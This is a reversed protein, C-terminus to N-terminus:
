AFWALVIGILYLAFLPVAVIMMNVPDVTPTVIAALTVVGMIAYRWGRLLQRATVVKLKALFFLVLPMEFSIGVWFLFSTVFSFYTSSRPTTLIGLFNLLFQLATPVMIFWAFGVGLFFLITGSPVLIYIWRKERKELGPSIFAVIQYLLFPFGLVVGGLLSVRMFVGINETVDISVLQERGGLPAALFNVLTGSYYFSVATMVAISILIKSIRIRLDELHELVTMAGADQSALRRRVVSRFARFRKRPSWDHSKEGTPSGPIVPPASM